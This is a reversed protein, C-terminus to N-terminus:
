GFLEALKYSRSYARAMNLADTDSLTRSPHQQWNRWFSHWSTLVKAMANERRQRNAREQAAKQRQQKQADATAQAHMGDQYGRNYAATQQASATATANYNQDEQHEESLFAYGANTFPNMSAINSAM